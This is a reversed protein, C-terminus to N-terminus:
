ADNKDVVSVYDHLPVTQHYEMNTKYASACMDHYEMITKHASACM